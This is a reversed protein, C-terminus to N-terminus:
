VGGDLQDGVEIFSIGQFSFTLVGAPASNNLSIHKKREIPAISDFSKLYSFKSNDQFTKNTNKRKHM